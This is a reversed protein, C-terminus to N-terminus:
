NDIFGARAVFEHSPTNSAEDNCIYLYVANNSIATITAATNENQFKQIMNFKHYWKVTRESSQSGGTGLAFTMDKLVILQKTENKGRQALITPASTLDLLAANTPATGLPAKDIFFILRIRTSVASAHVTYNGKYNIYKLRISSGNRQDNSDGQAVGNLLFFSGTAPFATASDYVETKHMEVNILSKVLLATKLAQQAIQLASKVKSGRSYNGRKSNSRKYPM